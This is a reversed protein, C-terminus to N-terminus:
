LTIISEIILEATRDIAELVIQEAPGKFIERHNIIGAPTIICIFITGVPKENSESGGATTLGTVAVTIKTNFIKSANEALKRTVQSSEPTYKDILVHPVNLLQEKVFVEYCVIGGRLIKGSHETMAFEASMRGATASEAFSINWDKAAIVKSCKKVIESPM